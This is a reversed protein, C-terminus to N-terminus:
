AQNIEKQGLLYQRLRLLDASNVNGSVNVLHAAELYAGSLSVQGLLYQRMKLLDASNINGDGTLDGYIVISFSEGTSFSVITGTAVKESDGIINGSANKFTVDGADTKGKLTGVTVNLSLNTIYSDKKNLGMRELHTSVPTVVVTSQNESSENSSNSESTRVVSGVYVGDSNATAGTAAYVLGAKAPNSASSYAGINYFNYFGEYTIGLYEFREGSTVLGITSGVEQRSLSALYVPSVNYTKGAEMFMSSYSVNDVTDNGSMFTGALVSKVVDETYRENYSLDEFMLISDVMLFNRPDLFYSVTADNAIYWDGETNMNSSDVCLSCASKQISSVLKETAVSTNFDLGTNLAEFTWNPYDNHLARLWVKYSEDFGEEDLADEFKQDTVVSTGGVEKGTVPHATYSPMNDYVPITFHLALSLLGNEKYSNYSSKAENYPAALNAMYQHQYVKYSGNPNVNFKKLYSTYQGAAIYDNAIFSAGGLIAKKPSTWPRGYSSLVGIEPVDVYSACVYGVTSNYTVKYWGATCGVGNYTDTSELIVSSGKSLYQIVPNNTGAGSRFSVSSETLTGVISADVNDKFSLFLFCFSFLFFSIKCFYRM